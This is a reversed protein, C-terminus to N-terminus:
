ICFSFMHAFYHLIKAIKGTRERNRERNALERKRERERWWEREREGV